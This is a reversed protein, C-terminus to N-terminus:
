VFPAGCVISRRVFTAGKIVYVYFCFPSWHVHELWADHLLCSDCLGIGCHFPTTEDFHGTIPFIRILLSFIFSSYFSTNFNHRYTVDYFFGAESPAVPSPAEGHKPWSEFSRLRANFSNYAPHQLPRWCEVTHRMVLRDLRTATVRDM